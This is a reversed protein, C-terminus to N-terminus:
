KERKKKRRRSSVAYLVQDVLQQPDRRSPRVAVYPSSTPGFVEFVTGVSHYTEDVVRDGIRPIKKTKLILNKSTSVHLVHGIRQL